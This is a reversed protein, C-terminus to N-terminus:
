TIHRDSQYKSRAPAISLTRNLNMRIFQRTAPNHAVDYYNVAEANNITVPFMEMEEKRKKKLNSRIYQALDANRPRQGPNVRFFKPQEYDSVQRNQRLVNGQFRLIVLPEEDVYYPDTVGPMNMNAPYQVNRESPTYFYKGAPRTPVPLDSFYINPSIKGYEPNVLTEIDRPINIHRDHYLFFLCWDELSQCGGVKIKLLRRILEVKCKLIKERDKNITPATKNMWEDVWPGYDHTIDKYQDMFIRFRKVMEPSWKSMIARASENSDSNGPTRFDPWGPFNEDVTAPGGHSGKKFVSAFERNGARSRETLVFKNKTSALFDVDRTEWFVPM